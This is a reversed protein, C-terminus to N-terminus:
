SPAIGVGFTSWHAALAGLDFMFPHALQSASAEGLGLVEGFSSSCGIAEGIRASACRGGVGM